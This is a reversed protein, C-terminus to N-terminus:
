KKELWALIDLLDQQPMRQDSFGPMFRNTRTGSEEHDRIRKAIKLLKDAGRSGKKMVPKVSGFKAPQDDIGHCAICYKIVMEGGRTVDGGTVKEPVTWTQSDYPFNTARDAGGGTKLFANLDALEQASLGPEAAGQWSVACHNGGLAANSSGKSKINTRHSVDWLSMSARAMGDADDFFLKDGADFSHCNVCAMKSAHQKEFFIVKGSAASPTLSAVDKWQPYADELSGTIPKAGGSCGVALCLSCLAALLFCTKM